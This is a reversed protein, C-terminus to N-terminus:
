IYLNKLKLVVDEPFNGLAEWTKQCRRRADEPTKWVRQLVLLSLFVRHCCGVGLLQPPVTKPQNRFAGTHVGAAPMRWWVGTRIWVM